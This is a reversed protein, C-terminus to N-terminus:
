KGLTKSAKFRGYIALVAGVSAVINFVNDTLATQLDAQVPHGFAALISAIVAVAGGIVTKSQWFPKTDPTEM